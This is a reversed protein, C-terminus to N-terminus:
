DGVQSGHLESCVSSELAEARDQEQLLEQEDPIPADVQLDPMQLRPSARTARCFCCMVAVMILCTALIALVDSLFLEVHFEFALLPTGRGVFHRYTPLALQMQNVNIAPM